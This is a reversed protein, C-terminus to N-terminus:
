CTKAPHSDLAVALIHSAPHQPCDNNLIDEYTAFSVDEVQWCAWFEPDSFFDLIDDGGHGLGTVVPKCVELRTM